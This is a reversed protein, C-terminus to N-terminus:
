GVAHRASGLVSEEDETHGCKACEARMRVVVPCRNSRIHRSVEAIM